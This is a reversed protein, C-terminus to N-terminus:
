KSMALLVRQWNVSNTDNKGKGVVPVCQMVANASKTKREILEGTPLTLSPVRLVQLDLTDLSAIVVGRDIGLPRGCVSTSSVGNPILLTCSM